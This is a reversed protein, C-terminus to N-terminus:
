TLGKCSGKRRLMHGKAGWRLSLGGELAAPRRHAAGKSLSKCGGRQGEGSVSGAESLQLGGRHLARQM